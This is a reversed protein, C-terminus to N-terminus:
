AIRTKHFVCPVPGDCAKGRCHTMQTYLFHLKGVLYIITRSVGFSGIKQGDHLRGCCRLDNPMLSKCFIHLPYFDDGLPEPIERSFSYALPSNQFCIFAQQQCSIAIAASLDLMSTTPASDSVLTAALVLFAFRPWSIEAATVFCIRACSFCCPSAMTSIISCDVSNMFFPWMSM